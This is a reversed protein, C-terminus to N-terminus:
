EVAATKVLLAVSIGLEEGSVKIQRSRDVAVWLQGDAEILAFLSGTEADLMQFHEGRVAESWVRVMSADLHSRHALEEFGGPVFRRWSAAYLGDLDNAILAELRRQLEEKWAAKGAADQSHSSSAFSQYGNELDSSSNRPAIWCSLQGSVIQRV